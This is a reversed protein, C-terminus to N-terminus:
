RGNIVPEDLYWNGTLEPHFEWFMGSKLLSMYNEETKINRYRDSFDVAPLMPKICTHPSTPEISQPIETTSTSLSSPTSNSM